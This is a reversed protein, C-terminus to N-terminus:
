SGACNGKNRVDGRRLIAILHKGSWRTGLYGGHPQIPASFLGGAAGTGLAPPPAPPGEIGPGEQLYFEM